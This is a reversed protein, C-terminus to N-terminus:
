EITDVLGGSVLVTFNDNNVGTCELGSDKGALNCQHQVFRKTINVIVIKKKQVSRTNKHSSAIYCPSTPLYNLILVKDRFATTNTNTLKLIRFITAINSM